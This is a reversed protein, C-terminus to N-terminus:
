SAHKARHKIFAFILVFLWSLASSLVLSIAVAIPFFADLYGLRVLDILQNTSTVALASIFVSLIRNEILKYSILSYVLTLLVFVIWFLFEM